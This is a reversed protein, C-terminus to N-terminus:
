WDIGRGRYHAGSEKALMDGWSSERQLNNKLIFHSNVLVGGAIVGVVTFGLAVFGLIGMM